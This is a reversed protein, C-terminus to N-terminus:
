IKEKTIWSRLGINDFTFTEIGLGKNKIANMLKIKNFTPVYFLFYGGGGAGLLKGGLAGNELAYTYIDDLFQTTIKDSFHKKTEWAKHLLEGFNDLQGKLLKSKMEYAIDKSLQAFKKQEEKNMNEKQKDHIDGSNHNLGTYCLVLSDELENLIDDSIRLPNVINEHNKFEMFNFGGFVTAYQDQWGGALGLEVREAHFALEAIEYDNFKNERFNNFTGIIASLLVASGGLGSGPPVDSYTYLEFGFDPNLLKLVAKILDLKGDFKLQTINDYSIKQNLDNSFINIKKDDRKTLVAHAFKNITSNLVVGDEETFYTTLDTGGGAFSIRVPSKAKSIINEKENWNINGQSVISVLKNNKNLIPIVRIKTDLLKLINEKTANDEFLFIFKKNMCELVSRNINNNKVILRRIDGDTLCGIIIDDKEIFIISSNNKDIKILAEKITAKNNIVYEILIM